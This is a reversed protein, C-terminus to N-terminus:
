ISFLDCSLLDLESRLLRVLPLLPLDSKGMATRELCAAVDACRYGGVAECMSKIPHAQAAVETMDRDHAAGELDDMRLPVENLFVSAMGRLLELNGDAYQLARGIDLVDGVPTIPSPYMDM